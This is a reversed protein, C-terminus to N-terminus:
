PSSGPGDATVAPLGILVWSICPLNWPRGHVTLSTSGTQSLKDEGLRVLTRPCSTGNAAEQSRGVSLTRALKPCNTGSLRSMARGAALGMPCRAADVLQSM